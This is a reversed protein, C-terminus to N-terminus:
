GVRRGLGAAGPVAEILEEVTVETIEQNGDEAFRNAVTDAFRRFDQEVGLEKALSTVRANDIGCPIIWEFPTLDNNVNIAFGHSTVGGKTRIGISAIKRAPQDDEVWVGTLGKIPKADVGHDALSRITVREIRRIFAVVDFPRSEGDGRRGALSLIPYAVLQGPGHYTVRGGRNTEHIEVGREAYWDEGLPLEEDTAARGRTYVPPHELLILVDPIAGEARAAAIAVQADTSDAYGVTGARVVWLSTPSAARGAVDGEAGSGALAPAQPQPGTM